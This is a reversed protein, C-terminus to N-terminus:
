CSFGLAGGIEGRLVPSECWPGEGTGHTASAPGAFAMLMLAAISLILAIRRKM